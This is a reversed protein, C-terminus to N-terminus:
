WGTGDPSDVDQWSTWEDGSTGGGSEGGGGEGGGGGVDGGGGGGGGEGDTASAAEGIVVGKGSCGFYDGSDLSCTFSGPEGPFTAFAFVATRLNTLTPPTETFTAIPANTDSFRRRIPLRPAPPALTVPPNTLTVTLCAIWKTVVSYNRNGLFAAHRSM